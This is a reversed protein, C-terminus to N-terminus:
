GRREARKRCGTVWGGGDDEKRALTELSVCCCRRVVLLGRVCVAGDEEEECRRVGGRWIGSRGSVMRQKMERWKGALSRFLRVCCCGWPLWIEGCCCSWGYCGRLWLLGEDEMKTKWLTEGEEGACTRGEGRKQIVRCVRGEGERERGVIERERMRRREGSGKVLVWRRKGCDREGEAVWRRAGGRRGMEGLAMGDGERDARVSERERATEGRCSM